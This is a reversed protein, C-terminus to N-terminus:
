ATVKKIIILKDGDKIYDINEIKNATAIDDVNTNYEKAISWLTENEQVIHITVSAISNLVEPDIDNFELDTALNVSKNENVCVNINLNIRIEIEKDNIMNFGINEVFIDVESMMEPTCGKAEVVQYFPVKARSSCIPNMDTKTIYVSSIEVNGTVVVRDDELEVNELFAKPNVSVVQLVDDNDTDISIVEKINCQNKNKAVINTTDINQVNFKVEKNVCHADDVIKFKEEKICRVKALVEADIDFCREEGDDDEAIVAKAECVYMEVDAVMGVGEEAEKVAISGNFPTSHELCDIVSGDKDQRYYITSLLEGSVVVEGDLCKVDRNCIRNKVQVVEYINENNQPVCAQDKVMFKDRSFGVANMIRVDKYLINSPNIDEVDAIYEYEGKEYGTGTINLVARYSLKRDNVMKFEINSIDGKIDFYTDETIDAISLYDDINLRNVMSHIYESGKAVYLVKVELAGRYSCKESMVDVQDIVVDYDYELVNRIDPKVDPVIIDGELLLQHKKLPLSKNLTLYERKISNEM